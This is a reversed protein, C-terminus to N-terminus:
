IHILSLDGNASSINNGRPPNPMGSGGYRGTRSGNGPRLPAERERRKGLRHQMNATATPISPKPCLSLLAQVTFVMPASSSVSCTVGTTDRRHREGRTSGRGRKAELNPDVGATLCGPLFCAHFHSIKHGIKLRSKLGSPQPNGLKLISDTKLRWMPIYSSSRTSVFRFFCVLSSSDRICMESGVLSRLM